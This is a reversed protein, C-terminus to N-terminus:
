LPGSARHEALWEESMWGLDCSNVGGATRMSPIMVLATLATLVKVIFLMHNDGSEIPTSRGQCAACHVHADPRHRQTGSPTCAGAAVAAAISIARKRM